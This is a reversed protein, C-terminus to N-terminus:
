MTTSRAALSGPCCGAGTAPLPVGKTEAQTLADDIRGRVVSHGLATDAFHDYIFDRLSM